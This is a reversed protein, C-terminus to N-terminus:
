LPAIHNAISMKTLEKTSISLKASDADCCYRSSLEDMHEEEILPLHILSSCYVLISRRSCRLRRTTRRIANDCSLVIAFQTVVFVRYGSYLLLEMPWLDFPMSHEAPYQQSTTRADKLMLRRADLMWSGVDLM